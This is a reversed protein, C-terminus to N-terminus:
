LAAVAALLSLALLLGFLSESMVYREYILLPGNLAVLAGALLAAGRGFTLRGLLYTVLVTALGLLHQALALARLDEGLILIVGAIFLPYAPTRRQGLEFPLGRAIEWGPLFYSQSDKGVFAPSRTHLAVRVLLALILLAGVQVAENSVARVLGALIRSKLRFQDGPIAAHLPLARKAHSPRPARGTPTLTQHSV